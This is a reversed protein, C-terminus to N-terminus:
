KSFRGLRDRKPKPEYIGVYGGSRAHFVACRVGESEFLKSAFEHAEWLFNTRLKPVQPLHYLKHEESLIVVEYETAGTEECYKEFSPFPLIRLKRAREAEQIKWEAFTIINTDM